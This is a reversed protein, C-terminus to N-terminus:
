AGILRRTLFSEDENKIFGFSKIVEFVFIGVERFKSLVMFQDKLSACNPDIKM